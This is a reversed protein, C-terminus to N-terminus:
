LLFVFCMWLANLSGEYFSITMGISLCLIKLLIVLKRNESGFPVRFARIFQVILRIVLILTGVVGVQLLYGVYTNHPVANRGIVLSNGGFLLGGAPQSFIYSLFYSFLSTRNSTAESIDGRGLSTLASEIRAVYMDVAPHHMAPTNLYIWVVGLGAAVVVLLIVVSKKARTDILIALFLTLLMFLLGSLSVTVLMAALFVASLAVKLVWGISRDCWACLLGINLLFCSLNPDGTGVGLVGYRIVTVSEFSNTMEFEVFEVGGTLLVHLAILLIAMLAGRFFRTLTQSSRSLVLFALVFSITYIVSRAAIWGVAALEIQLVLSAVLLFAEGRTMSRKYLVLRAVALILLLYPFSVSGGIITGMADNAVIILATVAEAYGTFYLFACLAAMIPGTLTWISKSLFAVFTCCYLFFLLLRGLNIKIGGLNRPTLQQESTM